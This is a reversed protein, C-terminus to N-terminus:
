ETRTSSARSRISREDDVKDHSMGGRLDCVRANKRRNKGHETEAASTTVIITSHCVGATGEYAVSISVFLDQVV